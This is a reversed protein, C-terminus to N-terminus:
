FLEPLTVGFRKGYEDPMSGQKNKYEIQVWGKYWFRYKYPTMWAMLEWMDPAYEMWIQMNRAVNTVPYTASPIMYSAFQNAGTPLHDPKKLKVGEFTTQNLVIFKGQEWAM